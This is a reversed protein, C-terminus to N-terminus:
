VSTSRELILQSCQLEDVVDDFGKVSIKLVHYTFQIGQGRAAQCLNKTGCVTYSNTSGTSHYSQEAAIVRERERERERERVCVCVCEGGRKREREM